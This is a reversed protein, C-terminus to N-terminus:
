PQAQKSAAKMDDVYLDLVLIADEAKESDRLAQFSLPKSSIWRQFSQTAIIERWNPHQYDVKAMEVNRRITQDDLHDASQRVPRPQPAMPAPIASPQPMQRWAEIRRMELAHQELMLARRAELEQQRAAESSLSEFLGSLAGRVAGQARSQAFPPNREMEEMRREFERDSKDKERERQREEDAQRKEFRRQNDERQKELRRNSEDNMREFQRKQEDQRREDDRKSEEQRRTFWDDQALVHGSLAICVLLIIRKM